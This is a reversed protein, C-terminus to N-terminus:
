YRGASIFFIRFYGRFRLNYFCPGKVRNGLPLRPNKGSLIVCSTVKSRFFFGDLRNLVNSSQIVLARYLIKKKVKPKKKLAIKKLPGKVVIPSRVRDFSKHIRLLGLSIGGTNDVVLSYRM